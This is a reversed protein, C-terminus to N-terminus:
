NGSRCYDECKTHIYLFVGVAGHHCGACGDLDACIVLLHHSGHQPQLHPVGLEVLGEDVGGLGTSVPVGVVAVESTLAIYSSGVQKHM